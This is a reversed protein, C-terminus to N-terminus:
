GGRTRIYIARTRHARAIVLLGALLLLYATPEPIPSTAIAHAVYSFDNGDIVLGTDIFGDSLGEIAIEKGTVDNGAADGWPDMVWMKGTNTASDYRIGTLTIYHQNDGNAMFLEIDQGKKLEAYLFQLTPVTSDAIGAPKTGITKRINADDRWAFNMQGHVLTTGPARDALYKQKGIVFDEIVTGTPTAGCAAGACGGMYAAGLSNAVLKIDLVGNNTPILETNGVYTLPYQNQLFMLSNAAATPGCNVNPCDTSRQNLHGFLAADLKYEFVEAHVPRTIGSFLSSLVLLLSFLSVNRRSSM